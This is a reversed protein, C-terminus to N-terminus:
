LANGRYKIISNSLVELNEEEISIVVTRSVARDLLNIPEIYSELIRPTIIVVTTYNGQRKRTERVTNEFFSPIRYHIEGLVKLFNALHNQGLGPHYFYGRQESRENHANTALGYPIKADEFEEIVARTLSIAKEIIDEEVPKWCPKMTEINLLIIVSNDTTFDFNKVMLNGYKLSSPWHIFRQPENGTYERIGITMLPDELIWRKVSIDGSLSGIPIINKKLDVREPYIVVENSMEVYENKSKLGIFDGLRLQVDGIAYLGRKRVFVKYTRKVRQYPMIFLTYTNNSISFNKPFAETIKLFSVTLPKKNEVISHVEIEEGIEYYKKEIEMRYSLDKPSFYLALNNILVTVGILGLIGFLYWIM